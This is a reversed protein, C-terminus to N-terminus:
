GGGGNTKKSEQAGACTAGNARNENNIADDVDKKPHSCFINYAGSNNAFISLIVITFIPLVNFFLCLKMETCSISVSKADLYPKRTPSNL